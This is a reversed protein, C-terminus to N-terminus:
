IYRSMKNENLSPKTIADFYVYIHVYIDVEM